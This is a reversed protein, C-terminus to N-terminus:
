GPILATRLPRYQEAHAMADNIAELPYCSSVLEGFPYREHWRALFSLAERLDKPGYNYVGSIRIMRRVLDEAAVQVPRTPSVTGAMVLHGGARMLPIAAEIGAPDGAFELVADVGRGGTAQMAAEAAESGPAAVQTAGFRLALKRRGEDPDIAVVARAGQEAAMACATLGLM